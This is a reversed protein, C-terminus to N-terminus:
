VHARRDADNGIVKIVEAKLSIEGLRIHCIENQAVAGEAEVIVLNSVIGKVKGTRM